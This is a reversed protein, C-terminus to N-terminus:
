LRPTCHYRAALLSGVCSLEWTRRFGAHAEPLCSSQRYCLISVSIILDVQANYPLIKATSKRSRSKMRKKAQRMKTKRRCNSVKKREQKRGKHDSSGKHESSGLGQFSRKDEFREDDVLGGEHYTAAHAIGEFSALTAGAPRARSRRHKFTIPRLPQQQQQQQHQHTQGARKQKRSSKSNGQETYKLRTDFQSNM